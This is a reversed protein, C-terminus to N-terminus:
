PGQIIVSGTLGNTEQFFGEGSSQSQLLAGNFTRKVNGTDLFSGTFLGTATTLKLTFGTPGSPATVIEKKSIDIPVVLPTALDGGSLTVNATTYNVVAPKYAGATLAIEAAFGDPYPAKANPQCFWDLTGTFGIPSTNPTLTGLVLEAGATKTQAKAFYFAWTNGEVLSGHVIVPTGDGFYGTFTASGSKSILITGYGNGAPLTTEASALPLQATYSGVLSKPAAAPLASTLTLQSNDNVNTLTGTLAGSAALSITV